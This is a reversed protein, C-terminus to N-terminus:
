FRVSFDNRNLGVAFFHYAESLHILKIRSFCTAFSMASSFVRLLLSDSIARECNSFIRRRSSNALLLTCNPSRTIMKSQANDVMDQAAITMDNDNVTLILVKYDSLLGKNVAKGFGIHYFEEGYLSKDDM